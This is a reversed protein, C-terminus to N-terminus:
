KTGVTSSSGGCFAKYAAEGKTYNGNNYSTPFEFYHGLTDSRLCIDRGNGFRPGLTNKNYIAYKKDVIPYKEDLTISFLFSQGSNDEEPQDINTSKWELPTFGGIIKDHKTEIM